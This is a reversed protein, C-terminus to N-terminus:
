SRSSCTSRARWGRIRRPVHRADVNHGLSELLEGAARANGPSAPRPSRSSSRTWPSGSASSAPSSEGLEETYPREPPPAFYPDGPMGGHVAELIAATDRVSRSVVLEETLGGLSDGILPGQSIRQRTPKLGVLGCHSAPIRISGGGDNAHAVPM